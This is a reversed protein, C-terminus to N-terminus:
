DNGPLPVVINYIRHSRKTITTTINDRRLHARRRFGCLTCNSFFKGVIYIYIYIYINIYDSLKNGHECSGKV